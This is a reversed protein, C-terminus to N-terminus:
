KEGYVWSFARGWKIFIPIYIAANIALAAAFIALKRMTDTHSTDSNM